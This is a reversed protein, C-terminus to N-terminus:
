VAKAKQWCSDFHNSLLNAMPKHNWITFYYEPREQKLDSLALIVKKNDVVFANLGHDFVKNEVSHKAYEKIKDHAKHHIMKVKVTDSKIKEIAKSLPGHEKDLETFGIIHEKAEELEQTLIRIFDEKDKVKMVKEGEIELGKKGLLNEERIAEIESQLGEIEKKKEEVLKQLTKKAEIIRYRKPRGQIEIILGKKVLGDLVDYVRTKPVQANRSIEPAKAERLEFLSNLTKSEYETLGLKELLGYLTSETM